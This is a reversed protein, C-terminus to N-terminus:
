LLNPTNLSLNAYSCNVKKLHVPYEFNSEDGFVEKEFIVNVELFELTKTLFKKNRSDRVNLHETEALLRKFSFKEKNTLTKEKFM